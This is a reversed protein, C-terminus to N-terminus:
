ETMVKDILYNEKTINLTGNTVNLLFLQHEINKNRNIYIKFFNDVINKQNNKDLVEANDFIIPFYSKNFDQFLNALEFGVM